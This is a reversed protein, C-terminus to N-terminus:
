ESHGPKPRSAAVSVSARADPADDVSNPVAAHLRDVFPALTGEAQAITSHATHFRVTDGARDTVTIVIGSVDPPLWRFRDPPPESPDVDVHAVSAWDLTVSTRWRRLRIGGSGLDLVGPLRTRRVPTGAWTGGLCRVGAVSSAAFPGLSDFAATDRWWEGDGVAAITDAAAELARRRADLDRVVSQARARLVFTDRFGESREIVTIRCRHRRLPEVGIDSRLLGCRVGNHAPFFLGWSSDTIEFVGGHPDSIADPPGYSDLTYLSAKTM